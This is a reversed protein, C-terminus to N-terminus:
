SDDGASHQQTRRFKPGTDPTGLYGVQKREEEKEQQLQPAQGKEQLPWIQRDQQPVHVQPLGQPVQVSLAAQVTISSSALCIWSPHSASITFGLALPTSRDADDIPVPASATQWEFEHGQPVPTVPADKHRYLREVTSM